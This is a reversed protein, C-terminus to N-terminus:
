EEDLMAVLRKNANARFSEDVWRELRDMAPTDNPHFTATVWGGSGVKYRTPEASALTAAESLSGELKFIADTSGLFLFAKERAKITRKEVSTGECAVGESAQPFGMAFGRLLQVPDPSRNMM